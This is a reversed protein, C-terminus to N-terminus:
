GLSSTRKYTWSRLPICADITIGNHKKTAQLFARGRPTQAAKCSTQHFSPLLRRHRLKVEATLTQGKLHHNAKLDLEYRIVRADRPPSLIILPLRAFILLKTLSCPIVMTMLKYFASGTHMLIPRIITTPVAVKPLPIIKQMLYVFRLGPIKSIRPVAQFSHGTNKNWVVVDFYISKAEKWSLSTDLLIGKENQYGALPVFLQASNRILKQQKEQQKKLMGAATFATHGGMFGHDHITKGSEDKKLPM